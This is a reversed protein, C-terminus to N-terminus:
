FIESILNRKYLLTLNGCFEHELFSVCTKLIKAHTMKKLNYHIFNILKKILSM